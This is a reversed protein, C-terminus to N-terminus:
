YKGLIADRTWNRVAKFLWHRQRRAAFRLIKQFLFLTHSRLGFIFYIFKQEIEASNRVMIIRNRAKQYASQPNALYTSELKTKERMQHDIPLDLMVYIPYGAKTIRQTLDMDEYIFEMREDFPINQFIKTAWFLCNSSAFKIKCLSEQEFIKIKRKSFFNIRRPKQIGLFYSFDRYGRSRIKWKNTETPILVSSKNTNQKISKRTKILRECFDTDFVNDDDVALVLPSDVLSFWYNRVYSVWLNPKFSTDIESIILIKKTFAWLEKHLTDKYNQLQEKEQKNEIKKDILLYIKDALISQMSLSFLTPLIKEIPRNTPIIVSYM